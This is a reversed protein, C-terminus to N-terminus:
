FDGPVRQGSQSKPHRQQRKALIERLTRIRSSLLYRDNEVVDHLEQTLAAAEDDSLDLHPM